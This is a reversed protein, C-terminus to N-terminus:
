LAGKVYSFTHCNNNFILDAKFATGVAFNNSRHSDVLIQFILLLDKIFANITISVLQASKVAEANNAPEVSVLLM